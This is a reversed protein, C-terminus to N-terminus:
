TNITVGCVHLAVDPLREVHEKVKKLTEQKQSELYPMMILEVEDDYFDSNM